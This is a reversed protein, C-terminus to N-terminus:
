TGPVTPKGGKTDEFELLIQLFICEARFLFLLAFGVTQRKGFLILRSVDDRGVYTKVPPWTMLNDKSNNNTEIQTM